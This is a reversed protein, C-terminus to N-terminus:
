YTLIRIMHVKPDSRSLVFIIKRPSLLFLINCIHNESNPDLEHDYKNNWPCKQWRQWKTLLRGRDTPAHPSGSLLSLCTSVLLSDVWDLSPLWAPQVVYGFSTAWWGWSWVPVMNCCCPKSVPHKQYNRYTHPLAPCYPCFYKARYINSFKHYRYLQYRYLEVVKNTYFFVGWWNIKVWSNKIHM